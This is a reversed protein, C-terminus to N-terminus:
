ILQNLFAKADIAIPAEVVNWNSRSLESAVSSGNEFSAVM